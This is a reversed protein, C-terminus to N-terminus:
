ICRHVRRTRSILERRAMWVIVEERPYQQNRGGCFSVSPPYRGMRSSRDNQLTKKDVGWLTIVQEETLYPGVPLEAVLRAIISDFLDKHTESSESAARLEGAPLNQLM